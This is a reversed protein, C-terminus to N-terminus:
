AIVELTFNSGVVGRLDVSYGVNQFATLEFYTPSGATIYIVPTTISQDGRYAAISSASWVVGTNDKLKIERYGGTVVTDWRVNATLRVKKAGTPVVLRSPNAGNWMGFQPAALTNNWNVPTEVGSPITQAVNLYAVTIAGAVSGNLINNTGADTYADTCAQLVSGRYVSASTGSSFALQNAVGVYRNNTVQIATCTGVTTVAGAGTFGYFLSNSVTVSSCTDLYVGCSAVAVTDTVFEVDSITIDDTNIAYFAPVPSSPTTGAVRIDVIGGTWVISSLKYPLGSVCDFYGASKIAVFYCDTVLLGQSPVETADFKLGRAFFNFQCNTVASNVCSRHFFLGVGALNNWDTVPRGSVYTDAIRTNWASTIEIGRLWYSTNDVSRVECNTITPGSALHYNSTGGVAVNYSITIAGADPGAGACRFGLSAITPAYPQEIGSQAFQFDICKVGAASKIVSTKPGDGLLTINGTRNVLTLASSIYYVGSPFYLTGGKGGLFACCAVLAANVAAYDDTSGDGVAGYNRVNFVGATSGGGGGSIATQTINTIRGKSDVTVVPAYTPSGYTGATVSSFLGDALQAVTAKETTSTTVTPLITTSSITGAAPLESIKVDSM